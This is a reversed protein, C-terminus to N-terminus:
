KQVLAMVPQKIEFWDEELLVRERIQWIAEQYDTAYDVNVCALNDGDRLYCKVNRLM